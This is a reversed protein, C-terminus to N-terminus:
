SSKGPIQEVVRLRQIFVSVKVAVQIRKCSLRSLSKILEERFIYSFFFCSPLLLYFLLPSPPTSFLRVDGRKGRKERKGREGRTQM